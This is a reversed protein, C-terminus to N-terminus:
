AQERELERWGIDRRHPVSREAGPLPKGRVDIAVRLQREDIILQGAEGRVDM